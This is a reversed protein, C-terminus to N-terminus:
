FFENISIRNNHDSDFYLFLDNLKSEDILTSLKSQFLNAFENRSIYGDNNGDLEQFLGSLKLNNKKM